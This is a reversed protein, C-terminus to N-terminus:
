RAYKEPKPELQVMEKLAQILKSKGQQYAISTSLIAENEREGKRVMQVLRHCVGHIEAVVSTTDDKKATKITTKGM